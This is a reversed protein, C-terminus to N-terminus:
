VEHEDVSCVMNVGQVDIKNMTQVIWILKSVPALFHGQRKKLGFNERWCYETFLESM